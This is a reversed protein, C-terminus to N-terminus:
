FGMDKKLKALEDDLNPKGANAYKKELSATEDYPGANLEAEANARDLMMNAKEEMRSFAAATEGAKTQATIVNMKKQTKAVAVTAKISAKKSELEQIDTVLKDHMERMKEANAKAIKCAAELSTKKEEYFQKKELFVKADGDNGASIAAKALNLYKRVSEENEDWLKRTRKEEAMVAATNEKVDALDGRLKILYQDVMKVPDEAKDLLANINASIIDGFRELVGM